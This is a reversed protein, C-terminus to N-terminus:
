TLHGTGPALSTGGEYATHWGTGTVFRLDASRIFAGSRTTHGTRNPLAGLDRTNFLGEWPLARSATV